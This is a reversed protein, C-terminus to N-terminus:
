VNRGSRTTTVVERMPNDDELSPNGSEGAESVSRNLGSQIDIYTNTVRAADDDDFDMEAFDDNKIDTVPYPLTVILDDTGFVVKTFFVRRLWVTDRTIHVSNTKPDWM